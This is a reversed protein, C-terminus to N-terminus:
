PTAAGSNAANILPLNKWWTQPDFAHMFLYARADTQPVVTVPTDVDPAAHLPVFLRQQRAGVFVLAPEHGAAAIEGLTARGHQAVFAVLAELAEAGHETTRAGRLRFFLRRAAANLPIQDTWIIHSMGAASALRAEADFAQQVTATLYRRKLIQIVCLLRDPQLEALVFPSRPKVAGEPTWEFPWLKWRRVVGALELYELLYLALVRDAGDVARPEGGILPSYRKSARAKGAMDRVPPTAFVFARWAESGFELKNM